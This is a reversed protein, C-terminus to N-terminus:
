VRWIEFARPLWAVRSQGTIGPQVGTGSGAAAPLDGHHHRRRADDRRVARRRVGHDTEPPHHRDATLTGAATRVVLDAPAPQRCRACSAGGGAGLVTTTPPWVG